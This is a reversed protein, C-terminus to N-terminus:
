KNENDVKIENVEKFQQEKQKAKLAKFIKKPVYRVKKDFGNGYAETVSTSFLFANEDIEFVIDKLNRAEYKNLLCLLINRQNKSYVGTGDLITAGRYLKTLIADAIEEYRDSIIYYAKTGKGGEIVLDTIKANLYIAILTYLSNTIGYTAVSLILVFTNVVIIIKGVTIENNIHHLLNGLMEGGGTSGGGRVVLGTGIGMLVSGFICPLFMDGNFDISFKIFQISITYLGIGFLSYVFYKKGVIKLSFFLLFVNMGLYLISPSIYFLHWNVFLKSILAAIGSFGGPAINNNIFFCNFAVGMLAIGVVIYLIKIIESLVKNNKVKIMLNQAM